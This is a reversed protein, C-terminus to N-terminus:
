VNELGKWGIMEELKKAVEVVKNEKRLGSLIQLGMPLGNQVKLDLKSESGSSSGTVPVNIKCLPIQMAPGGYINGLVTYLDEHYVEVPDRNMGLPFAVGPTTPMLLVDFKEFAANLKNV